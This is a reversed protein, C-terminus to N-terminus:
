EVASKLRSITEDKGIVSAIFFPDPSKERGSLAVRLPWLVDGRGHETAYDWVANKVHESDSFNESSVKEFLLTLKKIHARTGNEKESSNKPMLLTKGYVPTEFFFGFEGERFLASFDELTHIRELILPLITDLREPHTAIIKKTDEKAHSILLKKFSERDNEFIKKLYEKNIWNLRTIDFMAGGKQVREIRFDRILTEMDFIEEDGEPHWGLLAIFNVLAKELYGVKRYEAVSVAGHRKSLKSRDPALILPIHAYVPREIGLAEQILIQRPTNAIMDEGRIVHTIGAEADDAVVALHYLPEEISRAIIFDGLDKTDIRVDERILDNFVIEKGPNKFRIVEPRDGDKKIEEKSIYAHGSTLLKQIEEKHKKTHTSQLVIEEDSSIGLWSLNEVIDRTFEERSREKDTDEIRIVFKGGSQRAFVYNFLATRASGLHLPGTPSPAFRTKINHTKM